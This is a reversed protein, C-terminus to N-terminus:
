TTASLRRTTSWSTDPRRSPPLTGRGRARPYSSMEESRTRCGAVSLLWMQWGDRAFDGGGRAVCIEHTGTKAMRCLNRTDWNQGFGFFRAHDLRAAFPLVAKAAQELVEQAPRPDEPPDGALQDELSQQFDGDWAKEESLGGTREVVLEAARRRLDLMQEPTMLLDGATNEKDAPMHEPGAGGSSRTMSTSENKESSSHSAAGDYGAEGAGSM